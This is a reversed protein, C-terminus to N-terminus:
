GGDASADQEGMLTLRFRGTTIGAAREYRTALITYDGDAPLVFAAILSNQGGGSDDDSIIERAAGDTLAVLPDLAGGIREMRLTVRDGASGTFRYYLASREDTLDGEIIAGYELPIAADFRTGLGSQAASELTLVFAGTTTGAAGGFRGAALVYIGDARILLNEIAADLSGSDPLDDNQAIVTGDSDTLILFPDLSGSARQLRVTIVDGRQARFTYFFQTEASDITNIVSDGYRLASGSASSVGVRRVELAFAGSTRGLRGGFRGVVVFYRQSVPIRLSDFATATDSAALVGGSGDVVALVPALDGGVVTLAVSVIEGRLAEFAYVARPTDDNLAGAAPQDYILLPADAPLGASATDQAATDAVPAQPSPAQARVAAALLGIWAALVLARM